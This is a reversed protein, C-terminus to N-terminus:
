VWVIWGKRKIKRNTDCRSQEVKGLKESDWESQGTKGIEM